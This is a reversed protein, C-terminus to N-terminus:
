GREEYLAAGGSGPCFVYLCRDVPDWAITHAGEETEVTQLLELRDSEFSCVVGPAGIAVYLRRLEPDHMLVDPAGPLPLSTLVEGNDRDLVILAGGDAACFLRGSDLWLGHPGESPVDLAREIAARECDIEVIQAPSQINAYICDLERDYVAWRPGGRCRSSRSCSFHTSGL